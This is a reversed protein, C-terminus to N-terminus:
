ELELLAQELYGIIKELKKFQKQEEPIDEQLQRLTDLKEELDEKLNILVYDFM